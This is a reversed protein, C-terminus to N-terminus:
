KIILSKGHSIMDCTLSRRFCYNLILYLSSFILGITILNFVYNDIFSSLMYCPVTIVICIFLPKIAIQYTEFCSIKILNRLSILWHPYQTILPLVMLAIIFLDVNGSYSCVYMYLSVFVIRFITWYFGLDTRGKAIILSGVPNGMSQQAYYICLGFLVFALDSYSEGYLIALLPLSASAMLGYLCFNAWGIVNICYVYSSKLREDQDQIKAYVPTLVSTIVPNIFHYVHSSLNKCLTYGGFFTMSFNSSIIITDMERSFFDLTSSGIQFGGVKLASRIDHINFYFTINKEQFLGVYLYVIAICISGLLSSWVMSYVGCGSYALIVNALLTIIASVMSVIAVFRFNMKKRQVTQQLSSISDTFIMFSTFSIVGILETNDYYRAILPSSLSIIAALMIGSSINMWYLSSFRNKSIDQEHMVVTSFGMLVFIQSFSNFLMAIGVLGFDAKELFRTLIAVQLVKVISVLIGSVTNWKVGSYAEQKLTKM